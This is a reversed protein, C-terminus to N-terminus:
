VEKTLTHPLIHAVDLDGYQDSIDLLNGDDDKAPPQRLRVSMEKSDFTRTIVCRHRDRTLCTGRLVSLREPTGM